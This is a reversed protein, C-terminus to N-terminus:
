TLNCTHLFAFGGDGDGGLVAALSGGALHRDLGCGYRNRVYREVLRFEREPKRM